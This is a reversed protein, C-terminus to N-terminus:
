VLREIMEAVILATALDPDSSSRLELTVRPDLVDAPPEGRDLLRVAAGGGLGLVFALGAPCATRFREYEDIIGPRTGIFDRTKGGVFVAADLGPRIMHDRLAAVDEAPDHGKGYIKVARFVRRDEAEKPLGGHTVWVAALHLEVGAGEAAIDVIAKHVLPTITPHGGFVVTAGLDVMTQIFTVLFPALTHAADAADEPDPMSASVFVRRGALARPSIRMPIKSAVRPLPTVCVQDGGVRALGKVTPIPYPRTGGVLMGRGQGVVECLQMVAEITPIEETCAVRLERTDPRVLWHKGEVILEWGRLTCVRQLTRSVRDRFAVRRALLRRAMNAAAAAVAAIDDGTEWPVHPATFSHHFAGRTPSVAIVPVHAVRALDLEEAVWPSAAAGRSDVVIVLESQLMEKSIQRQIEVGGVIEHCDMFARFGAERLAERLAEALTTGDQRAYSLFVQGGTGYHRLGAHHLLSQVVFDPTDLGIANVTALAPFPPTRFDYTTCSDVVLMCPFKGKMIAQVRAHIAADGGLDDSAIVLLSYLAACAPASSSAWPLSMATLMEDGGILARIRDAAPAGQATHLIEYHFRDM